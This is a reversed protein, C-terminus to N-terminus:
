AGKIGLIDKIHSMCQGTNQKLMCSERGMLWLLDALKREAPTRDPNNIIAIIQKVEDDNLYFM